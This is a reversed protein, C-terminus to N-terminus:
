LALRLVVEHGIKEGTHEFGLKRYFGEPSGEGQRCSVLLEQAGPRARVYEVLRQIAQRGYGRGHYPEAIMFRWLFYEPEQDNDVIMMFGVPAKGAYIARFWAYPNFHAQALSIANPAVFNKKPETLTDSLLCIGYVTTATIEQLTVAGNSGFRQGLLPILQRAANLVPALQDPATQDRVRKTILDIAARWWLIDPDTTTAETVLKDLMFVVGYRLDAPITPLTPEVAHVFEQLGERLATSIEADKIRVILDEDM